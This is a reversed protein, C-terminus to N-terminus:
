GNIGKVERILNKLASARIRKQSPPLNIEGLIPAIKKAKKPIGKVLNAGVGVTSAEKISDLVGFWFYDEPREEAQKRMKKEHGKKMKEFISVIYPWDKEHGEEAARQKAMEWHREDVPTKVLNAPM